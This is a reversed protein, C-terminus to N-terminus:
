AGCVIVSFAVADFFFEAGLAKLSAKIATGFGLHRPGATEILCYPRNPQARKEINTVDCTPAVTLSEPASHELHFRALASPGSLKLCGGM